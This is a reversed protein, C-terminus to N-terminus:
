LKAGATRPDRQYPYSHFTGHLGTVGFPATEHVALVQDVAEDGVLELGSTAGLGAADGAQAGGVPGDAYGGGAALGEAPAHGGCLRFLLVVAPPNPSRLARDRLGSRM